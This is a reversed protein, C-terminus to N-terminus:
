LCWNIYKCDGSPISFSFYFFFFGPFQFLVLQQFFLICFLCTNCSYLAFGVLSFSHFVFRDHLVHTDKISVCYPVQKLELIQSCKYYNMMRSVWSMLEQPPLCIRQHNRQRKRCIVCCIMYLISLLTRKSFQKREIDAKKTNPNFCASFKSDLFVKSM